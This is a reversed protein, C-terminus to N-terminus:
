DKPGLIVNATCGNTIRWFSHFYVKTGNKASLVVSNRELRLLESYRKANGYIINPVMGNKWQGRFINKIEKQAQKVNFHRQGIAIFCSDWLWQHPYLETTPKTWGGVNNRKLVAICDDILKQQGDM